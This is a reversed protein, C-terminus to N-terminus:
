AKGEWYKLLRNLRSIVKERGLLELTEFLGPGDKRGILAVRVPHILVKLKLGLKEAALRFAKDLFDKKFEEILGLQEILFRVEKSSDTELIKM